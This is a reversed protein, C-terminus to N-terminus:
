HSPFPSDTKAAWKSMDNETRLELKSKALLYLCFGSSLSSLPNVHNISLVSAKQKKEVGRFWIPGMKGM